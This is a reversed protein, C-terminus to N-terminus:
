CREARRHLGSVSKSSRRSMRRAPYPQPGASGAAFKIGVPKDGFHLVLEGGEYSAPDSLFVTSSVDSRMQGNALPLFASDAHAGYKMGPEYRALTPPAMRRPFTFERFERSRNFAERVIRGAEEFSADGPASQLNQKQQFGDNTARGDIFKTRAAIACLSALEEPKLLDKIELIM